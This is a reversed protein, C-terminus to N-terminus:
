YHAFSYCSETDGVGGVDLSNAGLSACVFM